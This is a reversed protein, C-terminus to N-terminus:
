FIYFSYELRQDFNSAQTLDFFILDTTEDAEIQDGRRSIVCKHMKTSAGKQCRIQM